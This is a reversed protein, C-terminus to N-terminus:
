RSQFVNFGCKRLKSVRATIRMERETIHRIKWSMDQDVAAKASHCKEYGLTVATTPIALEQGLVKANM